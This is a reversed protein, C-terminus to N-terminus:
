WVLCLVVFRVRFLGMFYACCVSCLSFTCMMLCVVYVSLVSYRSVGKGIRFGFGTFVVVM